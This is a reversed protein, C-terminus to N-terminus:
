VGILTEICRAGPRDGVITHSRWASVKPRRSFLSIPHQRAAQGERGECALRM